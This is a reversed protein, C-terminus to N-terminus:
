PLLSVEQPCLLIILVLQFFSGLQWGREWSRAATAVIPIALFYELGGRGRWM